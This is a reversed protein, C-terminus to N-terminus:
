SRAWIGPSTPPSPPPAWAAAPAASRWSGAARCRAAPARGRCAPLGSCAPWWRRALPKYLYEAVGLDRTLSRYFNMDARDGIVLVRTNPEVVESLDHLAALPADEGTIDVVLVEPSPMKRLLATAQRISNRKILISPVLESMGERLALESDADTVFGMVAAREAAPKQGTEPAAQALTNQAM